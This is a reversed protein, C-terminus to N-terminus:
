RTERANLVNRLTLDTVGRAVADSLVQEDRRIRTAGFNM